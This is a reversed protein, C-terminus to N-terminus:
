TDGWGSLTESEDHARPGSNLERGAEVEVGVRLHAEEEKPHRRGRRKGAEGRWRWEMKGIVGRLGMGM